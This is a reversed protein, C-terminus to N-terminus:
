LNSVDFSYGVILSQKSTWGGNVELVYKAPKISQYTPSEQFPVTKEHITVIKGSEDLFIIDLSIRTNRMWFSQIAPSDFVFLMGCNECLSDRNMLGKAREDATKAFELNTPFQKKAMQTSLNTSFPTKKLLVQSVFILVFVACFIIVFFVSKKM